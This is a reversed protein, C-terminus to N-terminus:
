CTGTEPCLADAQDTFGAGVALMGFLKFVMELFFFYM